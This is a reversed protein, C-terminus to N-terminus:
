LVASRAAWPHAGAPLWPSFCINRGQGGGPSGPQPKGPRLLLHPGLAPLARGWGQPQQGPHPLLPHQARVWAAADTRVGLAPCEGSIWGRPSLAPKAGQGPMMRPLPEVPTTGPAPSHPLRTPHCRTQPCRTEAKMPVPFGGRPGVATGLGPTRLGLLAVGRSAILVALWRRWALMWFAIQCPSPTGLGGLAQVCGTGPEGDCGPSAGRAVTWHRLRALRSGWGWTATGPPCPAAPLGVLVLRTQSAAGLHNRLSAALRPSREWRRKLVLRQGGQRCLGRSLNRSPPQSFATTQM